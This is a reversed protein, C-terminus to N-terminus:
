LTGAELGYLYQALVMLDHSTGDGKLKNAKWSIVHINDKTYGRTNDIRDLTPSGDHMAGEGKCLPIGFIPCKEPIVIDELTIEFALGRKAAREKASQFLRRNHNDVYYKRKKKKLTAKNERRYNKQWEAIEEAKEARRRKQNKKCAAAYKPNNHYYARMYDRNKAKREEDTM